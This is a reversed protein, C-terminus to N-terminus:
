NQITSPKVDFQDSEKSNTANKQRGKYTIDLMAGKIYNKSKDWEENQDQGVLDNLSQMISVIITQKMTIEENSYPDFLVIADRVNVTGDSPNEVSIKAFRNFTLNKRTYKRLEAMADDIDEESEAKKLKTEAKAIKANADESKVEDFSWFTYSLSANLNPTLYASKAQETTFPKIQKGEEQVVLLNSM